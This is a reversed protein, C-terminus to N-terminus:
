RPKVVLRVSENIRALFLPLKQEAIYQDTALQAGLLWGYDDIIMVGGVSLLPYLHALEAYTSSYLDTDLRLLAITDPRTVPLTAEVMGEVFVFNERPYGSSYVVNRVHEQPGGFGWKRGNREFEEWTPLAPAGDWRVDLETPKAM